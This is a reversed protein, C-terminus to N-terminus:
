CKNTGGSSSRRIRGLTPGKRASDQMGLPTVAVRAARRCEPVGARPSPTEQASGLTNPYSGDLHNPSWWGQTYRFALRVESDSVVRNLADVDSALGQLRQQASGASALQTEFAPLDAHIRDHIRKQEDRYTTTPQILQAAYRPSVYPNM